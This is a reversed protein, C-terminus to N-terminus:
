ARPLTFRRASEADLQALAEIVVRGGEGGKLISYIPPAGPFKVDVISGRVSAVVGRNM